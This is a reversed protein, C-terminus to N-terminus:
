NQLIKLKQTKEGNSNKLKKVMQTKKTKDVIWNKLKEGNSNKLKM